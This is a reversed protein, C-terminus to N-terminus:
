GILRDLKSGFRLNEFRVAFGWVSGGPVTIKRVARCGQNVYYNKNIKNMHYSDYRPIPLPEATSGCGSGCPFFESGCARFRLIKLRV